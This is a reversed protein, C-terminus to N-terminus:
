RDRRRDLRDEGTAVLAEFAETDNQSLHVQGLITLCDPQTEVIPACLGAIEGARAQLQGQM